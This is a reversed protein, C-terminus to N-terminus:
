SNRKGHMLMEVAHDFSGANTITGSNVFFIEDANQITNLRHAIIVKTTEAPLKSLITELIEETVTDINATAEDLILIDPTRVVARMFAIIQRQGLSMSGDEPISTDLGKDFRILLNDLGTKKIDLMVEEDNAHADYTGYMIAERVTAGFLYPEQLIFGIKKARHRADYTRIDQGELFVTGSTPDYLRAMLSATTTKGGGTPGVLAYTKGKELKLNIHNLVPKDKSYEFSVDKFELIPAAGEGALPLTPTPHNSLVKLDSELNLIDSIRDWAALALQFSSWLAALQRLPNYFRDVYVLFSVLFGITFHGQSIMYIGWVLVILMAINSAFDYTPQFINNIIGAKLSTNYNHNNAISFKERFYDRRNFAVIVKFNELSEQIEASLLGTAQLSKANKKKVWSATAQTALAILIAPVITVLGLKWNIGIAFAAAGLILFISGVFRTLTQAFFTNLNNTDSNIRSILDGAKNANFFAVPLVGLKMFIQNRLRYLLRQGVGGMWLLQFYNTFFSGVYIALIVLGSILIGHLNGPIVYMDVARGILFPAVLSCSAFLIIMTFAAILTGKEGEFLPKMGRVASLISGKQSEERITNLRYNKM